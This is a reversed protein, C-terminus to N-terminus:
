KPEWLDNNNINKPEKDGTSVLQYSASWNFLFNEDANHLSRKQVERIKRSSVSKLSNILRSLITQPSYIISFNVHDDCIDINIITVKFHDAVTFFTSCIVEKKGIFSDKGIRKSFFICNAHLRYIVKRGTRQTKNM